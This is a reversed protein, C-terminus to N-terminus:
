PSEEFEEDYVERSDQTHQIKYGDLWGRLRTMCGFKWNRGDSKDSNKTRFNNICAGDTTSEKSSFSGSSCLRDLNIV